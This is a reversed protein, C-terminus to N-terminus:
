DGEAGLTTLCDERNCKTCGAEAERWGKEAQEAFLGAEGEAMRNSNIVFDARCAM